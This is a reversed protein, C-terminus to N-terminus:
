QHLTTVIFSRQPTFAMAVADARDPSRGIRSKLDAKREMQVKGDATPRWRLALLEDFLEPDRPLAIEGAELLERLTWYSEARKNLYKSKNAAYHGGNHEKVSYRKQKLRDVVGSGIGVADVVITGWAKSYSAVYPRCGVRSAVAEIRAVTEMTSANNWSVLEEIVKGRRVAVVTSDPGFRAPDVSLLPASDRGLHHLLGEDFRDAAMDLWPRAILGEEGMSPFESLVRAQYVGSDVGYEAKLHEISERSPGGPIVTRGEIINPHEAAPIKVVNWRGSKSADFFTGSPELPNGLALIRDDPGTACSYMAEFGFPEIGQAESLIGLINAGHFGTLASVSSSTFGLIGADSGPGLKLASTFLEGPLEGSRHWMRDIEGFFITKVQRQTASTVLVLGGRAYVWWLALAASVADKGVAVAGQVLTLRHAVVSQAIEVQRSWPDFGLVEVMFGIPDDAYRRYSDVSRTSEQRDVLEGVDAQLKRIATSLSM